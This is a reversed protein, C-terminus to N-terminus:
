LLSHRLSDIQNLQYYISGKRAYAVAINPRLEIASDVEQLAQQFDGQYYFRLSRSLYRMAENQTSSNIDTQLIMNNLSDRYYNNNLKLEINHASINNISQKLISLSVQLFYIYEGANFLSSDVRGNIFLLPYEQAIKKTQNQRIKPINM